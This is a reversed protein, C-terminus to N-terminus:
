YKPRKAHTMSLGHAVMTEYYYATVNSYATGPETYECPHILSFSLRYMQYFKQLTVGKFLLLVLIQYSIFSDHWAKGMAM